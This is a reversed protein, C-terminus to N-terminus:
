LPIYAVDYIGSPGLLHQPTLPASCVNGGTNTVL